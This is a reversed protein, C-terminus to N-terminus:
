GERTRGSIARRIRQEIGKPLPANGLRETVFADLSRNFDLRDCCHLCNQLHVELASLREGALARDLYM